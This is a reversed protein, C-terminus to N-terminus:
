AGHIEKKGPKWFILYASILTLPIVLVKHPIIWRILGYSDPLTGFDLAIDPSIVDSWAYTGPNGFPNHSLWVIDGNWVHFTHKRGFVSFAVGEHHVYSRVWSVALLIAMVLTVCGAKRRWSHFFTQM